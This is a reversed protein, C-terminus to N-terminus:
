LPNALGKDAVCAAHTVECETGERRNKSTAKQKSQFTIKGLQRENKHTAQSTRGWDGIVFLRRYPKRSRENREM